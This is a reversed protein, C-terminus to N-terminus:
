APQPLLYSGDLAQSQVQMLRTALLRVALMTMRMSPLGLRASQARAFEGDQRVAEDELTISLYHILPSFAENLFLQYGVALILVIIMCTDCVLFFLGILCLEM